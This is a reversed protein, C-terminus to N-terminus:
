VDIQCLNSIPDVGDRLMFPQVDIDLGGCFHEFIQPTQVGLYHSSRSTARRNRLPGADHGAVESPVRSSSVLGTSFWIRRIASGRFFPRKPLPSVPTLLLAM